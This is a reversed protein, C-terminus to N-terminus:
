VNNTKELIEVPYDMDTLVKIGGKTKSIGKKLKYTYEFGNENKITKMHYNIISTNKSLKKCLKIYHTTLLCTVNDHKVIYEMFAAASVIAEEPNTGSYLEDFICFHTENQKEKICDIIYKCRRAEAQFLSDRGSTDPINLYCHINDYPMFELTEFCGFGFQQSLIINIISTKLSTTKGSANPGTIIMNKSMDCNNLIKNETDIFKPYYMKTFLPKTNKYIALHLKNEEINSKIGHLINIYGNFGLSYLIAENYINNDYIQYFIKMVHGVQYFKAVSMNFNDVYLLNQQLDKLIVIQKSLDKNFSTYTNFDKSKELWYEMTLISYNLYKKFKLLYDNIKKMNSYFRICILINQYISFLYFAASMLLYMKQGFNVENFNTFVQSIANQAIIAKLIEIYEKVSLQLGKIKIIIFPVILVFIPICLSIIPSAINYLSMFQLFSANNNMFKAFSWDVYLYKECFGTEGKIENWTNIFEDITFKDVSNDESIKNLDANSICNVLAQTDTLYNVDTTYYQPLIDLIKKGITTNPKFIYNYMPKNDENNCTEKKDSSTDKDSTDIINKSLELDLIVNEDLTKVNSNYTIPLKFFTNILELQSQSM